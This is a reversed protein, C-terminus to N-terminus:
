IGLGGRAKFAEAVHEADDLAIAVLPALIRWNAKSCSRSQWAESLLKGKYALIPSFRIVMVFATSIMRSQKKTFRLVNCIREIVTMLEALPTTMTVLNAIAIASVLKTCVIVGGLLKGALAHWFIVIVIFYSLAFLHRCATITFRIGAFLNIIVVAIFSAAVLWGHEILFIWMTFMSLIILKLAGSWNHYPTKVPSTLSLM